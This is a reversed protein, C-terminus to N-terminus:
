TCLWVRSADGTLVRPEIHVRPEPLEQPAGNGDARFRWRWVCVRQRTSNWGLVFTRELPVSDACRAGIRSKFHLATRCTCTLWFSHGGGASAQIVVENEDHFEPLRRLVSSHDESGLGMRGWKGSGCVCVVIESRPVTRPTRGSGDDVESDGQLQVTSTGPQASRSGRKRTRSSAETGSIDLQRQQVPLPHKVHFQFLGASV